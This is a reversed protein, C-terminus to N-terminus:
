RPMPDLSYFEQNLNKIMRGTWTEEGEIYKKWGLRQYFAIARVNKPDVSLNMVPFDRKGAIAEMRLMLKKGIGKGQVDPRTAIALIGFHRQMKPAFAAPSPQPRTPNKKLIKVSQTVRSRFYPHVFLNPHTLVIGILYLRNKQLFGSLAGHFRGGFCYGLMQHETFAGLAVVEHPGMLQWEYYRRVTERGLWTLASDQFAAMHIKAVDMLDDIGLEQLEAISTFDPEKIIELYM